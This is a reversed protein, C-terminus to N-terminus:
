YDLDELDEDELEISLWATFDWDALALRLESKSSLKFKIVANRTHTKVTDTSIMLHEAVQHNTYGRCVLAVVEQERPTLSQWCRMNEEVAQRHELAFGILETIIQEPPRQDRKALDHISQLLHSDLKFNRTSPPGASTLGAGSPAPGKRRITQLLRHWFYM